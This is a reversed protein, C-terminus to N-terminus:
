LSNKLIYGLQVGLYAAVPILLIFLIIKLVGSLDINPTFGSTTPQYTSGYASSGGMSSFVSSLVKLIGTLFTFILGLGSLVVAFISAVYVSFNPVVYSKDKCGFYGAFIGGFFVAFVITLMLFTIFDITGSSLFSSWFFSGVFLFIGFIVFSFAIVSFSTKEAINDFFGVPAYKSPKELLNYGCETCFEIDDENLETGCNPCHRIIVM